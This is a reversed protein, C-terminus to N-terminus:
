RSATYPRTAVAPHGGAIERGRCPPRSCCGSGSSVTASPRRSRPRTAEVLPLRFGGVDHGLLNLATKIAIPNTQVRLLDISPVCSEDIARAGGSDGARYRTIMEKVQPGVVHTHM